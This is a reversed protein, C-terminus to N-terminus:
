FPIDEELDAFSEQQHGPTAPPRPAPAASDHEVAKAPGLSLDRVICSVQAQKEGQKNEWQELVVEGTVAVFRGKKLYQALGHETGDKRGFLICKVWTTKKNDGWGQEVPLSFSTIATGSKAFRTEADQGIHGTINLSNM